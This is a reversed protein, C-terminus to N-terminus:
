SARYVDRDPVVFSSGDATVVTVEGSSVGGVLGDRWLHGGVLFRVRDGNSLEVRSM